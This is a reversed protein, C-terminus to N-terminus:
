VQEVITVTSWKRELMTHMGEYLGNSRILGMIDKGTQM